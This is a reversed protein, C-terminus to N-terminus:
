LRWGVGLVVKYPLMRGRYTETNLINTLGMRLDAQVIFGRQTQFGVIAAFGSGFKDVAYRPEATVSDQGVQLTYPLQSGGSVAGGVVFRSYPGIGGFCFHEGLPMRFTLPLVIDLAGVSMTNLTAAPDGWGMREVAPAVILRIGWTQNIHYETFLAIEGWVGCRSQFAPSPMNIAMGSLNVGALAGVSVKQREATEDDYDQGRTPFVALLVLLFAIIKYRM